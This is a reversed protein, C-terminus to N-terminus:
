PKEHSQMKLARMMGMAVRRIAPGNTSIASYDALMLGYGPGGNGEAPKKM